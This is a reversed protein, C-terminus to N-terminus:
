FARPELPIEVVAQQREDVRRASGAPVTTPQATPTTASSATPALTVEGQLVHVDTQGAVNVRVGFETGLDVVRARPTSVAFGHAKPPVTAALTGELLVM